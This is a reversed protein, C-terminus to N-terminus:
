LEHHAKRKQRRSTPTALWGGSSSNQLLHGGLVSQRANDQLVSLDALYQCAEQVLKFLFSEFRCLSLCWTFMQDFEEAFM